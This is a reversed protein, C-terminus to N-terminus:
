KLLLMKKTIKKNGVSLSYFYVGSKLKSGDFELSHEGKTYKNNVLTKIKQGMINYINIEVRNNEPINFSIKTKYNFPNPTNQSLNFNINESKNDIGINTQIFAGYIDGGTFEYQGGGTDIIAKTTIALYQDIGLGIGACLPIKDGTPEFIVFEDGIPNGSTDFYRGVAKTTASPMGDSWTILYKTGDFDAFPIQQNGEADSITITEQVVGSTTIFRGFLDWNSYNTADIQDEWVVLYRSGDFAIAGPNDSPYPGGDILFNAGILDGTESVLQGYVDKDSEEIKEVWVVLFNVGDFAILFDQRVLNSSIQVTSGLLEGSQSVRQGYLHNNKLFAVLYFNNGFAIAGKEDVDTAISFNSGVLNGSIDIFQGCIDNNSYYETWVVLYNTGDFAMLPAGDPPIGGHGGVSIQTGILSGTPSVMQVLVPYDDSEDGEIAVLFNTGDFAASAGFLSDEGVAIPFETFKSNTQSFVVTTLVILLLTIFQKKM